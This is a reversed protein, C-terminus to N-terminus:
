NLVEAPTSRRRRCSEPKPKGELRTAIKVPSIPPTLLKRVTALTKSAALFRQQSLNRRKELFAAHNLSVGQARAATLEAHTVALWCIVLNAALLEELIPTEPVALENKLEDAKRLTAEKLAIDGAAILDALAVEVQRTLDGYHQWVEPHQDFLQRIESLASMEDKEARSVLEALRQILPDTDVDGGNRDNMATSGM